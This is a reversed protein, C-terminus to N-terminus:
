RGDYDGSLRGDYNDGRLKIALAVGALVPLLAVIAVLAVAADFWRKLTSAYTPKAVELPLPVANMDCEFRVRRPMDTRREALPAADVAFEDQIVLLEAEDLLVQQPEDGVKPFRSSFDNM